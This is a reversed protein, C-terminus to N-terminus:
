VNATGWANMCLREVDEDTVPTFDRYYLGLAPFDRPCHLDVVSDAEAELWDHSEASCVPAAFGLHAPNAQRLARIAARATVGTTLGDDVIIVIRGAVDAMPRTGRYRVQRKRLEEREREVAPTLDSVGLGQCALADYDFIAPGDEAIAGVGLDAQWPLGIRQAIVLDFDAGLVKAVEVGVPTGGRPLALVLDPRLRTIAIAEGLIRGAAARNEFREDEPPWM